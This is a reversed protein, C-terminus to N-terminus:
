LDKSYDNKMFFFRINYIDDLYRSIKVRLFKNNVKKVGFDILKYDEKEYNTPIEKVMSYYVYEIPYATPYTYKSISFLYNFSDRECRAIYMIDPNLKKVLRSESDSDPLECFGNPLEFGFSHNDAYTM